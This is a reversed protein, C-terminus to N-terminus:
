EIPVRWTLVTGADDSPEVTCTGGLDTARRRANALGSEHREAPLGRGDDRVRLLGEDASAEVEIMVSTAEAHRAVNSLAERLVALMSEAPQGTIM